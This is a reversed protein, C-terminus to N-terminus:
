KIKYKLTAFYNLKVFCLWPKFTQERKPINLDWTLLHLPPSWTNLIILHKNKLQVSKASFPCKFLYHKISEYNLDCSCQDSKVVKIRHLFSNLCSHETLIQISQYSPTLLQQIKADDITGFFSKTITSSSTTYTDDLSDSIFNPFYITIKLQFLGFSFICLFCDRFFHLKNYINEIHNFWHHKQHTYKDIKSM